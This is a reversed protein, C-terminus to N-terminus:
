SPNGSPGIDDVTLVLPVLTGVQNVSVAAAGLTQQTVNITHAGISLATEVAFGTPYDSGGTILPSREQEILTTGDKIKLRLTALAGLAQGLRWAGDIRIRYKRNPVATIATAAGTITNETVNVNNQATTVVTRALEGWGLNWPPRWGCVPGMYQTFEGTNFLVCVMGVLPATILADRSAADAAIFHMESQTGGASISQVGRDTRYYIDGVGLAGGIATYQASSLPVLRIPELFKRSGM